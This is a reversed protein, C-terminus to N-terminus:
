IKDSYHLQKIYDEMFQWDPLNQSTIPLSIEENKIKELIRARGYTYRYNEENLITIIFLANYKNLYENRLTYIKVGSIFDKNQYFAFIGEAGITICNKKNLKYEGDDDNVFGSFGNNLSSRTIYPFIGEETGNMAKATKCEFIDDVKFERWKETNIKNMKLRQMLAM